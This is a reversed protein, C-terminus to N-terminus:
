RSSQGALLLSFYQAPACQQAREAFRFSESTQLHSLWSKVIQFPVDRDWGSRLLHVSSAAVPQWSLKSANHGLRLISATRISSMPTRRRVHPSELGSLLAPSLHAFPGGFCTPVDAQEQLQGVRLSRIQQLCYIQLLPSRKSSASGNRSMDFSREAALRAYGRTSEGFTDVPVRSTCSDSSSGTRAIIALRGAGERALVAECLNRSIEAEIREDALQGM